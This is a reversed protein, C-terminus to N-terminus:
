VTAPEAAKPAAKKAPQSGKNHFADVIDQPIRGRDSVQRGQKKAWARIADLQAKDAKAKANKSIGPKPAAVEPKRGAQMYPGVLSRLQEANKHSLDLEVWKGDFGVTYTGDADSGDIDDRLKIIVERAM